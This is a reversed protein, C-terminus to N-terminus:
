ECARMHAHTLVRAPLNRPHAIGLNARRQPAVHALLCGRSRPRTDAAEAERPARGVEYLDKSVHVEEGPEDWQNMTRSILM